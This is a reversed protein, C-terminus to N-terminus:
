SLSGPTVTSVTFKFYADMFRCLHRNHMQRCESTSNLVGLIKESVCKSSKGTLTANQCVSIINFPLLSPSNGLLYIINKQSSVENFVLTGSLNTKSQNTGTMHSFDKSRDRKVRRKKM